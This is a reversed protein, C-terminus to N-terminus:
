TPTPASRHYVGTKGNQARRRGGASGPPSPPRPTRAPAGGPARPERRGPTLAAGADPGQARAAQGMAQAEGSWAVNLIGTARAEVAAALSEVTNSLRHDPYPVPPTWPSLHGIWRQRRARTLARTSRNRSRPRIAPEGQLSPAFLVHPPASRVRGAAGSSGADLSFLKSNEVERSAQFARAMTRM